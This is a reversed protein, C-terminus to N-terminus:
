HTNESGINLDERNGVYAYSYDHAAIPQILRTWQRTWIERKEPSMIKLANQASGMYWDKETESDSYIKDSLQNKRWLRHDTKFTIFTRISEQVRQLDPIMPFGRDDIKFAKYALELITIAEEIYIYKDKIQYVRRGTKNHPAENTTNSAKFFSDTAEEYVEKNTSSRVGGPLIMVFDVPLPGRYDAITVNPTILSNGTIKEIYLSPAGMLGLAEGAWSVADGWDLEHAYGENRYISEIIPELSVFKM